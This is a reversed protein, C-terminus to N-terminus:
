FRYRVAVQVQRPDAASTIQGFTATGFTTAPNSFNVTNFANFAEFRLDLATGETIAFRKVLTLNVNFLQPGLAVNRASNGPTNLAQVAFGATNLFHLRDTKPDIGTNTDGIRNPRLGGGNRNLFTYNAGTAPNVGTANLTVNIPLGTRMSVIHSLQWGGLFGDAVRNWNSGLKRGKGL